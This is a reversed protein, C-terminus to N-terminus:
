KSEELPSVQEYNSLWEANGQYRPDERTNTVSPITERIVASGQEKNGYNSDGTTSLRQFSPQFGLSIKTEATAAPSQKDLVITPNKDPFQRLRTPDIDTTNRMLDKLQECTLNLPSISDKKLRESKDYEATFLHEKLKNIHEHFASLHGPVARGTRKWMKVFKGRSAPRFQGVPLPSGAAGHPTTRARTLDANFITYAPTETTVCNFQLNVGGARHQGYRGTSYGEYTLIVIGTLTTIESVLQNQHRKLWEVPVPNGSAPALVLRGNDFSVNDGRALLKLLLPRSKLLTISM